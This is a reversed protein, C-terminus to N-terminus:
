YVDYQVRKIQRWHKWTAQAQDPTQGGEQQLIEILCQAVQTAMQAQDGCLYLHAGRDLWDMVESRAQWLRQQVYIKEAQDRSFATTIQLGQQQWATLIPEPLVARLLDTKGAHAEGFFLWAQHNQNSQDSAHEAFRRQLFGFYPALGTGAGIMMIPTHEGAESDPQDEPLKFHPNPNHEVVQKDGPQSGSLVNSAAGYRVRRAREYVVQRYLLDVQTDGLAEPASAISYFRPSLPALLQCFALAKDPQALEPYETKLFEILDLLDRGEAFAMMAQRDPWISWGFRRQLKNLVAPQLQTLELHAHLAQSLPMEDHKPLTILTQESLCLANLCAQVLQPPNHPTAMLWDGPQYSLPAPLSLRLHYIAKDAEPTLLRNFVVEAQM